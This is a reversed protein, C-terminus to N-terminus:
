NCGGSILRVSHCQIFRRGDTKTACWWGAADQAANLQQTCKTYQHWNEGVSYKYYFPFKCDHGEETVCGLFFIFYIFSWFQYM